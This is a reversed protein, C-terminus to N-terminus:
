CIGAGPAAAGGRSARRVRYARTATAVRLLNESTGMHTLGTLRPETLTFSDTPQFHEATAGACAPTASGNWWMPVAAVPHRTYFVRKLQSKRLFVVARGPNPWRRM